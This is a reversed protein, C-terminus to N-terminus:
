LLPVANKPNLYFCSQREGTERLGDPIRTFQSRCWLAPDAGLRVADTMFKRQELESLGYVLYWGHLSKGGSSAVCALPMSNALHLHLAVCADAVTLGAAIWEPILPHDARFDFEIVQYVRTATAELSHQSMKGEQTLGERKLMPSSVIYACRALEGRWEERAQTAFQIKTLAVCLLPNGPFLVDVIEEAHSEGADFRVPSAECLDYLGLGERVIRRIADLDPLPWKPAPSYSSSFKGDAPVQQPGARRYASALQRQLKTLRPRHGTDAIRQAIEEFATQEPIGLSGARLFAQNGSDDLSGKVWALQDVYRHWIVLPDTPTYKPM